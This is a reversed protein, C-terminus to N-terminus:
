VIAGFCVRHMLVRPSRMTLQDGGRAICQAKDASHRRGRDREDARPPRELHQERHTRSHVSSPLGAASGNLPCVPRTLLTANAPMGRTRIPIKVGDRARLFHGTEPSDPLRNTIRLACIANALTPKIGGKENLKLFNKWNPNGRYPKEEPPVPQESFLKVAEEQRKAAVEERYSPLLDLAIRVLTQWGALKADRLSWDDEWKRRENSETQGDWRDAWACAAAVVMEEDDDGLEGAEILADICGKAALM